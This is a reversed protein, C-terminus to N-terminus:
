MGLSSKGPFNRFSPGLARPPKVLHRLQKERGPVMRCVAPLSPRVPRAGAAQM